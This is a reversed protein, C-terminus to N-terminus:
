LASETGGGRHESISKVAEEQAGPGILTQDSNGRPSWEGQAFGKIAKKLTGKMCSMAVMFRHNRKM